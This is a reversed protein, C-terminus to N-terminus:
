RLDESWKGCKDPLVKNLVLKDQIKELRWGEIINISLEYCSDNTIFSSPGPLEGTGSSWNVEFKNGNNAAIEFKDTGGTSVRNETAPIKDTSGLYKVTIENISVLPHEKYNIKEGIKGIYTSSASNTSNTSASVPPNNEMKNKTLYTIQIILAFLLIAIIVVKKM